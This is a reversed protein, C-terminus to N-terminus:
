VEIRYVRYKRFLTAGTHEINIKSCLNDELVTGAQIETMEPPLRRNLADFLVATVGHNRAEPSVHLCAARLISGEQLTVLAGVCREGQMALVTSRMREFHKEIAQALQEEGTPEVARYLARLREFLARRSMGAADAARLGWRMCAREAARRYFDEPFDARRVRYVLLEAESQWGCAEMLEGMWPPNDAELPTREGEFGWVRLGNGFGSLDGSLPGVAARLGRERLVDRVAQTLLSAAEQDRQAQLLRVYGVGARRTSGVVARALTRGDGTVALAREGPLLRVGGFFRLRDLLGDASTVRKM